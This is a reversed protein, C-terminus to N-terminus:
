EGKFDLEGKNKMILTAKGVDCGIAEKLAKLFGGYGAKNLNKAAVLADYAQEKTIEGAAVMEAIFVEKEIDTSFHKKMLDKRIQEEKDNFQTYVIVGNPLVEKKCWLYICSGLEGVEVFPTGFLEHRAKLAYNYATTGAISLENKYKDYIKFAVNSCTDIGNDNWEKDFSSKIINYNKKNDKRFETNNEDYIKIINVGGYVEEYECYLKLEELKASKNNRFAGYGVGFWDALEKTTIKGLKLNKM